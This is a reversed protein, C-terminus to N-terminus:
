CKASSTGQFPSMSSGLDHGRPDPLCVSATSGDANVNDANTSLNDSPETSCTTTITTTTPASGSGQNDEREQHLQQRRRVRKEYALKASTPDLDPNIYVSRALPDNSFRLTKAAKLLDSASVESNLHVLLRRPRGHPDSHRGLRRCGQQSLSPKSTMHQERFKSFTSEDTHEGTSEPLGSIIV